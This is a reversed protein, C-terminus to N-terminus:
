VEFVIHRTLTYCISLLPKYVVSKENKDITHQSKSLERNTEKLLNLLNLPRQAEKFKITLDSWVHSGRRSEFGAAYGFPTSFVIVSDDICPPSYVIKNEPPAPPVPVSINPRSEEADKEVFLQVGEDLGQSGTTNHKSDDRCAQIFFIKPIGKLRPDRFIEVIERVSVREDKFEPSFGSQDPEPHTLVYDEYTEVDDTQGDQRIIVGHSSVTVLICGCPEECCFRKFKNLVDLFRSKSLNRTDKAQESPYINFKLEKFMKVINQREQIIAIGRKLKNDGISFDWDFNVARWPKGKMVDYTSSM